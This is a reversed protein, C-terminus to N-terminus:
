LLALFKELDYKEFNYGYILSGGSQREKDKPENLIFIVLLACMFQLHLYMQM